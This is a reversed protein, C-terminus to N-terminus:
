TFLKILAQPHFPLEGLGAVGMLVGFFTPVLAAWYMPWLGTLATVAMLALAIALAAESLDFQDDRAALRDYDVQDQEARTRLAAKKKNQDAALTRFRQIAEDYAAAQAAPAGGKALEIQVATSEALDERINRAQYFAWHDLKDAQSRQMSQAVNDAKVACIGMFTAMVAVTIAVTANLRAESREKAEDAADKARAKEAANKATEILEQPDM